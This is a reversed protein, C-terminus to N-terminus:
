QESHTDIDKNLQQRLWDVIEQALTDVPHKLISRKIRMNVQKAEDAPNVAVLVVYRDFPDPDNGWFVQVEPIQAQVAELLQQQQDVV